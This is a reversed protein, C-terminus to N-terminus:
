WVGGNLVFVEGTVYDGHTSCLFAVAGAVDDPEGLRGVPIDPLLENELGAIMATRITRPAVCNANVGDRATEKSIAKTLAIVAGKSAAYHACAETGGDIGAGSSITVIRGFGAERMPGLARSACFYTGTLNVDITRRWDAATLEAIPTPVFIGACTVLLEVPGGLGREIQTFAGDVAREDAVDAAVTLRTSDGAKLDIGAVAAGLAHLTEAVALGIGSSAGTVVARRGEIGALRMTKAPETRLTM